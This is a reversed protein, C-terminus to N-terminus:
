VAQKQTVIPIWRFGKASKHRTRRAFPWSTYGPKDIQYHMGKMTETLDIADNHKILEHIDPDGLKDGICNINWALINMADPYGIGRKERYKNDMNNGYRANQNPILM